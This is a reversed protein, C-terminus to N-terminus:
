ATGGCDLLTTVIKRKWRRTTEDAENTQNPADGPKQSVSYVSSIVKGDGYDATMGDIEPRREVCITAIGFERAKRRESRLVGVNKHFIVFERECYSRRRTPLEAGIRFRTRGHEPGDHHLLGVYLKLDVHHPGRSGSEPGVFGDHQFCKFNSARAPISGACRASRRQFYTKLPLFADPYM